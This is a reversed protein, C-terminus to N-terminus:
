TCREGMKGSAKSANTRDQYRSPLRLAAAVSRVLCAACPTPLMHRWSEHILQFFLHKHHKRGFSGWFDARNSPWHFYSCFSSLGGTFCWQKSGVIRHDLYDVPFTVRLDCLPTVISLQVKQSERRGYPCVSAYRM